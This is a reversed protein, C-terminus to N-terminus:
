NNEMKILELNEKKILRSQSLEKKIFQDIREENKLTPLNLKDKQRYTEIIDQVLLTNIKELEPKGKLQVLENFYEQYHEEVELKCEESILKNMKDLNKDYTKQHKKFRNLIPAKIIIFFLTNIIISYFIIKPEGEFVLHLLGIIISLSSIIVFIFILDDYFFNPRLERLKEKNKKSNRLKRDIKNKKVIKM